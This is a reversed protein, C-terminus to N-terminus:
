GNSVTANGGGRGGGTSTIAQFVSNSGKTNSSGGAGVTITYSGPPLNDSHTRYGGGGGGGGVDSSVFGTGGGGGGAIVLYQVDIPLAPWVGGKVSEYVETLSWRGSAVSTTPDNSPGLVGGQASM